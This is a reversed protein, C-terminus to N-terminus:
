VGVLRLAVNVKLASHGHAPRYDKICLKLLINLFFHWDIQIKVAIVLTVMVLLYGDFIINM